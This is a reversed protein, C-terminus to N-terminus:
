PVINNECAINNRFIAKWGHESEHDSVCKSGEHAKEYKQYTESWHSKESILRYLNRERGYSKEIFGKERLARLSRFFTSSSLRIVLHHTKLIDSEFSGDDNQVDIIAALVDREDHKLGDIGLDGEM